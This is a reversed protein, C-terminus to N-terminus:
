EDGFEEKLKLYQKYRDQKYYESAERERAEELAREERLKALYWAKYDGCVVDIPLTEFENTVYGDRADDFVGFEIDFGEDNFYSQMEAYLKCGVGPQGFRQEAMFLGVEVVKKTIRNFVQRELDILEATSLKDIDLM